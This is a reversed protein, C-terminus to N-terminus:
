AEDVSNKLGIRHNASGRQRRVTRLEQRLRPNSKRPVHPSVPFRRHATAKPEVVSQQVRKVVTEVLGRWEVSRLRKRVHATELKCIVGPVVGGAPLLTEGLLTCGSM